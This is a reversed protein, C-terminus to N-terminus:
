PQAGRLQGTPRRGAGKARRRRVTSSGASARAAIQETWLLGTCTLLVGIVLCAQGIPNNTLFDIPDGGILFGLGCGAVPLLALLRSTMRPAALEGSILLDLEQDSRLAEAVRALSQEMGAGTETSVQWARALALLGQGGPEEGEILWSACPDGGIEALVKGPLLIPCDKAASRLAAAPVKGLRLEAALVNCAQAVEQGRRQARRARIRLRLLNAATALTAVLCVTIALLKTGGLVASLTLASITAIVLVPALALVKGTSRDSARGSRALRSRVNGPSLRPRGVAWSCGLATAIVALLVTM